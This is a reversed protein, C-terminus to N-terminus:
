TGFGPRRRGCSKRGSSPLVGVRLIEKKGSALSTMARATPGSEQAAVFRVLHFGLAVGHDNGFWGTQSSTGAETRFLGVTQGGPHTSALGHLAGVTDSDRARRRPRAAHIEQEVRGAARGLVSGVSANWSSAPM